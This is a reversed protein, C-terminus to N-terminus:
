QNLEPLPLRRLTVPPLVLTSGEELVAALNTDYYGARKLEISHLGPTFGSVREPTIKGTTRGDVSIRAGPPDTSVTFGTRARLIRTIDADTPMMELVAPAAAPRTWVWIGAAVSLVLVTSLVALSFGNRRRLSQGAIRARARAIADALEYGARGLFGTPALNPVAIRGVITDQASEQVTTRAATAERARAELHTKGLADPHANAEGARSRSFLKQTTARQIRQAWAASADLSSAV